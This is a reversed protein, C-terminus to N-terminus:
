ETEKYFSHSAETLAMKIRNHAAKREESHPTANLYEQIDLVTEGHVLELMPDDVSSGVSSLLAELDLKQQLTYQLLGSGHVPGEALRKILSGLPLFEKNNSDPIRSPFKEM